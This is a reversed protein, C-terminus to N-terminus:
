REPLRFFWAELGPAASAVGRPRVRCTLRPDNDLGSGIACWAEFTQDAERFEATLVRIRDATREELRASGESRLEAGLDGGGATRRVTRRLRLHDGDLTVEVTGSYMRGAGPQRGIVEYTGVFFDLLGADVPAPPSANARAGLMLALALIANLAKRM